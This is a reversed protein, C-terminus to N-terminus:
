IIKKLALNRWYILLTMSVLILGLMLGWWLGPLELKLSFCLFYSFPLALMWYGISSIFAPIKSIGAGRMVCSLICQTGDFLQFGGAIKLPIVAAHIININNTYVSIIISSCTLFFAAVVSMILLSLHLTKYGMIKAAEYNSEGILQGVLIAGATGLGMPIMFALSAINLVIQHAASQIHNLKAAMLSAASFLGVELFYQLSVPVGISLLKKIAHLNICNPLFSVRYYCLVGWTFFALIIRALLTAYGAGQSGMAPISCGGLVLWKVLIFNIINAIIILFVIPKTIHHSQFYQKATQFFLLFILSFNLSQTYHYTNELLLADFKLVLLLDKLFFQSFICCAFSYILYIWFGQQYYHIANYSDKAGFYQSILTDLGSILGLGIVLFISFIASGTGVAAVADPSYRGVIILDVMQMALMGFSSFIIPLALRLLKSFNTVLQSILNFAM